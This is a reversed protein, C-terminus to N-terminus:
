FSLMAQLWVRNNDSRGDSNKGFDDQGPNNGIVYAWSARLSGRGAFSCNLGIGAGQLWYNNSGTANFVDNIYRKHNLIIHGADYFAGLQFSDRTSSLPLTYRLDASFLQGEDGSAEGVPYARVSGPGGLTMKESSNLNSTAVQATGSININLHGSLRQMRALGVNFRSYSGETGTLSIDAISEHLTGTTIGLNYTTYGGDFLQDYRDGSVSFTANSLQKDSNDIDFNSDTLARYCYSLSTTINSTRSRLLPYSLGADISNGLGKYQLSALEGGLEYRLGTYALNARIGNFPLPISYGIRGQVLGSSETLLLTIQDGNHLPDNISLTANGRWSGTYYSGQNDSWVAGSFLPGETVAIEVGSTGSETGPVLSAKATIGPLDNMLLLSRELQHENVPQANKVAPRGIKILLNDDIRVSKDRKVGIRGDSKVQVVAIHIIGSTIDQSPLYASAQYFGKEKFLATINDALLQLEKFSLSKGIASAVTERLQAETTVGEYGSFTFGKVEVRLGDDAKSPVRKKEEPLPLQRQQEQVPKQDRLISGADPRIQAQLSSASIICLLALLGTARTITKVPLRGERNISSQRVEYFSYM